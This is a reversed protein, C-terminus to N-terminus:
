APRHMEVQKPRKRKVRMRIGSTISVALMASEMHANRRAISSSSGCGRQHANTRAALKPVLRNNLLRIPTTNGTAAASM